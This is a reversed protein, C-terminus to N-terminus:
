GRIPSTLLLEEHDTEGVDFLAQRATRWGGAERVQIAITTVGSMGFFPNGQYWGGSLPQMAFDAKGMEPMSPMTLEYRVNLGPRLRIRVTSDGQVGQAFTFTAPGFRAPLAPLSLFGANPGVLFNYSLVTAPQDPAQVTLKAQWRGLALFAGSGAFGGAIPRMMIKASQIMPFAPMSLVVRVRAHRVVRGQERIAAFLRVSGVAPRDIRLSVEMAGSRRTASIARLTAVASASAVHHVHATAAHNPRATRVVFLALILILVTIVGVALVNGIPAKVRVEASM